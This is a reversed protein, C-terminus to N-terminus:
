RRQGSGIRCFGTQDEPENLRRRCRCRLNPELSGHSPSSPVPAEIKFPQKNVHHGDCDGESQCKRDPPFATPAAVADAESREGDTDTAAQPNASRTSVFKGPAASAEPVRRLLAYDGTYPEYTATGDDLLPCHSPSTVAALMQFRRHWQHRTPNPRRLM